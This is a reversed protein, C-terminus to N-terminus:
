LYTGIYRGEPVDSRVELHAQLHTEEAAFTTQIVLLM